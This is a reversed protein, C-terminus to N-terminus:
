SNTVKGNTDQTPHSVQNYRSRIKVGKSVKKSHFSTIMSLMHRENRLCILHCLKCKQLEFTNDDDDYDSKQNVNLHLPMVWM